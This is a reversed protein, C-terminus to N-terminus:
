CSNSVKYGTYGWPRVARSEIVKDTCTRIAGQLRSIKMKDPVMDLHMNAIHYPKTPNDGSGTPDYITTSVALKASSKGAQPQATTPRKFRKPSESRHAQAEDKERKAEYKHLMKSM